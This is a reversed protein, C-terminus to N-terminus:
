SFNPPPILMEGHFAIYTEANGSNNYPVSQIFFTDISHHEHLYEESLTNSNGPVKEETNNGFPNSAEEESGALPLSSKEISSSKAMEQQFDCVFSISITLWFLTLMMFIASCKQLITVTHKRKKM